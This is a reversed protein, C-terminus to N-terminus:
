GVASSARVHRAGNPAGELRGAKVLVGAGSGKNRDRAQAFWVTRLGTTDGAAPISSPLSGELRRLWRSSFLFIGPLEPLPNGSLIIPADDGCEDAGGEGLSWASLAFDWQRRTASWSLGFSGFSAARM